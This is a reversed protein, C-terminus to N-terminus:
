KDNTSYEFRKGSEHEITLKDINLAVVTCGTSDIKDGVGVIIQRDGLEIAALKKDGSFVDKVKIQPKPIEKATSVPKDETKPKALPTQFRRAALSNLAKAIAKDEPKATDERDAEKNQTKYDPLESVGNPPMIIGTAILGASSIFCSAIAL